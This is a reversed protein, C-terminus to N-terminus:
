HLFKTNWRNDVQVTYVCSACTWWFLLLESYSGLSIIYLNILHRKMMFTRVSLCIFHLLMFSVVQHNWKNARESSNSTTKWYYFTLSFLIKNDFIIVFRGSHTNAVTKKESETEFPWAHPMSVFPVYQHNIFSILRMCVTSLLFLCVFSSRAFSVRIKNMKLGNSVTNMRNGIQSAAM